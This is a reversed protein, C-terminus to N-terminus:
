YDKHSGHEKHWRCQLSLSLHDNDGIFAINLSKGKRSGAAEVIISFLIDICYRNIVLRKGKGAVFYFMDIERILCFCIGVGIDHRLCCVFVIGVELMGLQAGILNKRQICFQPAHLHAEMSLHRLKIHALNERQFILLATVIAEYKSIPHVALCCVDGEAKGTDFFDEVVRFDNQSSTGVAIEVRGASRNVM